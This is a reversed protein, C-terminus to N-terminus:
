GRTPTPAHTRALAAARAAAWRRSDHHLARNLTDHGIVPDETPRGLAALGAVPRGEATLCTGDPATLVGREGPRVHVDGRRLLRDWLPDGSRPPCSANTFPRPLELVGPPATVAWIEPSGAAAERGAALLGAEALALLKQATRRSPGFAWRELRAARRRWVPWTRPSRPRRELSAIIDAYGASWVRGWWWALDTGGGPRACALGHRLQQALDERSAPAELRDLAQASTARVGHAGALAATAEALVRWWDEDADACGHLATTSAGVLERVLDQPGDPKPLMIEGSRSVLRIRAPERGSRVYELDTGPAATWRGGRGETLDLVVDFGTLAAGIVSVEAGAGLRDEDAVLGGHPVGGADAHGTCLLVERSRVPLAPGRLPQAELLWTGPEARRVEAVRARLHELALRPSDRLRAFAWALYRGIRARPPFPDRPVGPRTRREFERFDEPVAPCSMDVIGADVNMRLHPPLDPDWVAGAGPTGPDIVIVRLPATTGAAHLATDLDALAALARPGGGVVALDWRYRRAPVPADVARSM